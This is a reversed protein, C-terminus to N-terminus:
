SMVLLDCPWVVNKYRQLARKLGCPEYLTRLQCGFYGDRIIDNTSAYPHFTITQHIYPGKLEYGLEAGKKRGTYALCCTGEPSNVVWGLWTHQLQLVDIRSSYTSRM